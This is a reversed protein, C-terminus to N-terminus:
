EVSAPLFEGLCYLSSSQASVYIHRGDSIPSYKVSRDLQRSAVIEGSSLRLSYIWGNLLAAILYEGVIIPSATLTGALDVKWRLENLDPSDFCYLQGSNDAFVVYSGDSVPSSWSPSDLDFSHLQITDEPTSNQLKAEDESEASTGEVTKRAIQLAYATGGQGSFFLVGRENDYAPTSVLPSEVHLSYLERGDSAALAILIGDSGAVWLTAEASVSDSTDIEFSEVLIPAAILKGAVEKEWILDGSFRDLCYVVGDGGLAFLREEHSVLSASIDLIVSRWVRKGNNIRVCDLYNFPPGASNYLLSDILLAGSHPSSRNKFKALQEGNEPNIIFIRKKAGTYTLVGSSLSLPGQPREKMGREWVIDLAGTYNASGESDNIAIAGSGNAGGREYRWPSNANVALKLSSGSCAGLSLLVAM